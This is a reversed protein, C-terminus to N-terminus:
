RIPLNRIQFGLVHLIAQQQYILQLQVPQHKGYPQPQRVPLSGHQHYLQPLQLLHQVELDHEIFPCYWKYSSNETTYM